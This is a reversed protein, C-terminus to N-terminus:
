NRKVGELYVEKPLLNSFGEMEATLLDQDFVLFDADKGVTISGKRDAIGLQKANNITYCLISEEISM